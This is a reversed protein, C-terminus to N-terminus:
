SKFEKYKNILENIMIIDEEYMKLILNIEEENLGDKSMIIRNKKIDCLEVNSLKFDYKNRIKQNMRENNPSLIQSLENLEVITVNNGEIIDIIHNIAYKQTLLHSFFNGQYDTINLSVNSSNGFWVPIDKNLYVSLNNVDPIKETFCKYLFLLYEHFTINMNDYCTNNFLDEYFGSLFREVVDKRLIIYKKFDDNILEDKVMYEHNVDINLYHAVSTSGCKPAMIYVNKKNYDIYLIM